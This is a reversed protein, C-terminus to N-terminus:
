GEEENAHKNKLHVKLNYIVQSDSTGEISKDCVPCMTYLVIKRILKVKEKIKPKAMTVIPVVLIYVKRNNRVVLFYHFFSPLYHYFGGKM